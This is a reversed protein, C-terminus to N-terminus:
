SGSAPGGDDGFAAGKDYYLESSPGCPGTEGMEWFNDDGMRQIREAPVGVTHRWIAAAEDDDDHVTVWLRDGDLGLVGTLLEWHYPIALEKFYDGFSFNGLM